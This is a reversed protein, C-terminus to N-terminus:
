KLALVPQILNFIEAPNEYDLLRDITGKKVTTVSEQIILNDKDEASLLRSDMIIRNVIEGVRDLVDPNFSFKTKTELLGEYNELLAIKEPELGKGVSGQYKDMVIFMIKETGDALNFTDPNRRREQYLRLFEDKGIDKLRGGILEQESKANNIIAKLEDYRAIETAIGDVQVAEKETGKKAAPTAKKATAFLNKVPATATKVVEKAVIEEAVAVGAAATIKKVGKYYIEKFLPNSAHVFEGGEEDKFVVKGESLLIPIYSKGDYEVEDGLFLDERNFLHSPCYSLYDVSGGNAYQMALADEELCPEAYFYMWGEPLNVSDKVSDEDYGETYAVYEENKDTLLCVKYWQKGLEGGDEYEEVFLESAVMEKEEPTLEAWADYGVMQEAQEYISLKRVPVKSKPSFKAIESMAWEKVEEIPTNTKFTTGIEPVDEGKKFLMAFLNYNSKGGSKQTKLVFDENPLTYTEQSDKRTMGGDAYKKNIIAKVVREYELGSKTGRNWLMIDRVFERDFTDGGGWKDEKKAYQVYQNVAKEIESVSAGKPPFFYQFNGDKGYYDKIYDKFEKIEKQEIKNDVKVKSM